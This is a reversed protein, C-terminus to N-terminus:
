AREGRLAALAPALAALARARHSIRNKEAEPLEAMSHAGGDPTFIPDYGFGAAGRPAPLIEGACVGSALQLAGGPLALAAHCVFRAARSARPGRAALERLLLQVREADSLEEGGYRASLPGPAGGLADLEIGSDDALAPLGSALAAARAKAAANAAYDGGEPPLKVEPHAALSELAFGAGVLAALERLKGRNGTAVLLRTPASPARPSRRSL